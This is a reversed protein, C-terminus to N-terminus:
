WNSLCILQIDGEDRKKRMWRGIESAERSGITALKSVFCITNMM